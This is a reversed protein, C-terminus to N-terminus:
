VNSPTWNPTNGATLHWPLRVAGHFMHPIHIYTYTHKFISSAAWLIAITNMVIYINYQTKLMLLTDSGTTCKAGNGLGWSSFPVVNKLTSVVFCSM